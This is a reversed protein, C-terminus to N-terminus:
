RDPGGTRPATAPMYAPRLVFGAKAASLMGSSADHAASGLSLLTAGDWCRIDIAHRSPFELVHPAGPLDQPQVAFWVPAESLHTDFREVAPMGALARLAADPEIRRDSETFVRLPLTIDGSAVYHDNWAVLAFVSVLAVGIPVFYVALLRTLAQLVRDLYASVPAQDHSPQPM